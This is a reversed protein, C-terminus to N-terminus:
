VGEQAKVHQTSSQTEAKSTATAPGLTELHETGVIAAMKDLQGDEVIGTGDATMHVVVEDGFLAALEELPLGKTEKIFFYIIAGCVLCLGMYLLYM